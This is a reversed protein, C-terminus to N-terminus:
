NKKKPNRLTRCQNNIIEIYKQHELGQTNNQIYRYVARRIDQPIPIRPDKRRPDGIASMLKLEERGILALMLKRVIEAPHQQYRTFEMEVQPDIFIENNIIKIMPADDHEVSINGSHQAPTAIDGQCSAVETTVSEVSPSDQGLVIGHSNVSLGELWEKSDNIAIINVNYIKSCWSVNASNGKKKLIEKSQVVSLSKDKTWQVLAYM